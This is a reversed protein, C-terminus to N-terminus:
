KTFAKKREAFRKIVDVNPIDQVRVVCWPLLVSGAAKVEFQVARSYANYLLSMKAIDSWALRKDKCYLFTQDLRLPIVSLLLPQQRRLM